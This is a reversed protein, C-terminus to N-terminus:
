PTHLPTWMPLILTCPVGPWPEAGAPVTAYATILSQGGGTCNQRDTIPAM